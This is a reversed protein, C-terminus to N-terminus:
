GENNTEQALMQYELGTKKVLELHEWCVNWEEEIVDRYRAVATRERGEMKCLDCRIIEGRM